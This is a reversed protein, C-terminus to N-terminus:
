AVEVAAPDLELEAGDLRFVREPAPVDANLDFVQIRVRGDPEVAAVVSIGATTLDQVRIKLLRM